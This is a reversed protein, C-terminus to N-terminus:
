PLRIMTAKHFLCGADGIVAFSMVGCYPGGHGTIVGLGRADPPVHFVRSTTVSESPALRVDLPVASPAPDPAYRRGRDDIVYLWAGAARQTVRKARSEVRLDVAYTVDSSGVTRTAHEVSLCWDDFCWPDGVAIVRQPVMGSVLLGIVLYGAVAIGLAGLMRLSLARRGIVAVGLASLLTVLTALATLLFLLDFITV